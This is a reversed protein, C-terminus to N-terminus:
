PHQGPTGRPPRGPLAQGREKTMGAFAPIWAKEQSVLPTSPAGARVM